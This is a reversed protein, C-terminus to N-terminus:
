KKKVITGATTDIFKVVDPDTVWLKDARLPADIEIVQTTDGKFRIKILIKQETKSLTVDEILYRVMRKKDRFSVDSSLFAESFSSPLYEISQYDREKRIREVTEVQYAYENRADDLEKLVKNWSAELQLAVLRNDPDVSMYRKRALEAEYESRNVRMQFFTLTESQRNDLERQVSIAQKIADPTLRKVLLESIKRDIMLGPISQCLKGRYNHLEQDCRYIPSLQGARYQYNVRM